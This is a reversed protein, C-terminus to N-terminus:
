DLTQRYRKLGVAIAVVMFLIIPWLDPWIQVFGNSKLVIGRVIRLFHTLPLINGVYQAWMPMGRFPFMFGSLLFSPLFFFTSMQGAQLQTKALSSFTLGVALNAAIFPFLVGILLLLSGLVHIGFVFRSVILILAAQIYGVIIFPSLKGLMVELPRVPTSLLHEMTGKERERTICSGAIMVLTMMLVMGLLGPVINLRTIKEPNYNSHLIFNVAPQVVLQGTHMPSAFNGLLLPQFITNMLSQIASVAGGTAVPDTADAEVLLQPMEGRLLKRTFDPPITIIIQAKWEELLRRAEKESTVEREVNFYSTNRLGYLFARTYSSYDSTVVVTPLDKPDTNIAYGFIVLQMLPIAVIMAFTMRDRQLQIFEKKIVAFLRWFSFYKTIFMYIKKYRSNEM